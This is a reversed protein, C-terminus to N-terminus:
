RCSSRTCDEGEDACRAETWQEEGRCRGLLLLYGLWLWVVRTSNRRGGLREVDVAIAADGVGLVVLNEVPGVLVNVKGVARRVVKGIAVGVIGRGEDLVDVQGEVVDVFREDFPGAGVVVFPEQVDDLPHHVLAGASFPLADVDLPDLDDLIGDIGKVVIGGEDVAHTMPLQLIALLSPPLAVHLLQPDLPAVVGSPPSPEEESFLGLILSLPPLQQPKRCLVISPQLLAGTGAAVHEEVAKFTGFECREVAKGGDLHCRVVQSAEILLEKRCILSWISPLAGVVAEASGHHYTGLDLVVILLHLYITWGPVSSPAPLILPWGEHAPLGLVRGEGVVGTIPSIRSDLVMRVLITRLLHSARWRVSRTTSTGIPGGAGLVTWIM